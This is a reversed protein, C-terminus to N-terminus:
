ISASRDDGALMLSRTLPAPWWCILTGDLSRLTMVGERESRPRVRTHASTMFELTRENANWVVTSGCANAMLWVPLMATGHYYISPIQVLLPNGGLTVDLSNLKVVFEGRLGDFVVALNEANWRVGAGMASLVPRAQVLFQDNLMVPPEALEVPIGDVTVKVDEFEVEVDFQQEGITLHMGREVPPSESLGTLESLTVLEYGRAILTPVVTRMAAVTGGRNGGGDHMVVVAGDKARSLVRQAVVSSGPSQWDRPDVSWMAVRYGADNIAGRVRENVAGYPPRVWRVPGEIAEDIASRSRAIDSQIAASSLGTYDAHWWSHIGIEHGAEEVRKLLQKHKGVLGGLVFFTCRANNEAFIELLQPTYTANPGDDFTLAMRPPHQGSGQRSYVMRPEAIAVQISVPEGTECDVTLRRTHYVGPVVLRGHGPWSAHTPFLDATEVVAREEAAAVQEDSPSDAVRSWPWAHAVRPAASLAILLLAPIIRTLWRSKSATQSSRPSV